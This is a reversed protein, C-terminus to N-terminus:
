RKKEIEKKFYDVWPIPAPDIKRIFALYASVFGATLVLDLAQILRTRGKVGWSLTKLGRKLFVSETIQFRRKLVKDYLPSKILLFLMNQRLTKPFDLGELLHHNLEPLEFSVSFTKSNENIMNQFAHAAGTLHEASVLGISFRRLKIALEKAPNQPSFRNPSFATAREKLHNVAESLHNKELSIFGLKSFLALEASLSYGLGMRPQGSPNLRPSLFYGPVDAKEALSKLKGGACIVFVMAKKSQAERFCSLAEETNGSYSSVVVLTHRNVYAPLRYGAIIELPLTLDEFALSDIIRAGLASGGMGAVVVNLARSFDPKLKLSSVESFARSVQDPFLKASVLLGTSDLKALKTQNDLISM